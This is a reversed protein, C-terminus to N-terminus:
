LFLSFVEAETKRDVEAETDRSTKRRRSECGALTTMEMDFNINSCLMGSEAIEGERVCSVQKRDLTQWGSRVFLKKLVKAYNHM